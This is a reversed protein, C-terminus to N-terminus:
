VFVIGIGTSYKDTKIEVYNYNPKIVWEWLAKVQENTQLVCIDHLLIFGGQRVLPSYIKWDAEVVPFRHGGDIFLLDLKKKDLITKVEDHTKRDNSDKHWLYHYNPNNIEIAAEMKKDHDITIFIHPDFQEIFTKASYGRWTGIELINKIDEKELIRSVVELDTKYISASSKAIVDRPIVM